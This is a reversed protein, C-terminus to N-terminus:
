IGEKACCQELFRQTQRAAQEELQADTEFDDVYLWQVRSDKRFWTLQRKAYRRTERKLNEVAEELSLMGQFYPALEKYGIAQGSTRMDPRDLHRRAEELLGAAMMEDVRRNIRLYLRDRERFTLGLMLPLYPSPELRSQRKQEALTMGTSDYFELARVVRGINNFHVQQATQPDVTNLKEWLAQKGEREAFAFYNDRTKPNVPVPTFSVNDLLSTVYLGTGGVLVPLRKREWLEGIAARALKVYDAVSFPQSADLFGLLHHPVGGKEELSPQATAIEMGRYVQMSDASIVEGQFRRAIAAGLKSKGSATPGVVAIVPIKNIIM